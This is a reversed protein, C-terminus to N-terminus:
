LAPPEQAWGLYTAEPVFYMHATYRGPTGDTGEYHLLHVNDIPPISVTNLSMVSWSAGAAFAQQPLVYEIFVLKGAAEGYTVGEDGHATPPRTLPETLDRRHRGMRPCFENPYQDCAYLAFRRPLNALPPLSRLGRGPSAQGELPVFHWVFLFQDPSGAQGPVFDVTLHQPAPFELGRLSLHRYSKSEVLDQQRILYGASVVKGEAVGYLVGQTPNDKAAQAWVPLWDSGHHAGGDDRRFSFRGDLAHFAGRGALSGAVDFGVPLSSASPLSTWREADQGTQQGGMSTGLLVIALLTTVAASGRLRGPPDGGQHQRRPALTTPM